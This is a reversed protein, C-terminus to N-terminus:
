IELLNRLKNAIRQRSERSRSNQIEALWNPGRSLELTLLTSAAEELTVHGFFTWSRCPIEALMTSRLIDNTWSGNPMRMGSPM